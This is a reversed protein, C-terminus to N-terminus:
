RARWRCACLRRCGLGLIRWDPGLKIEAGRAGVIRELLLDRNFTDVLCLRLGIPLASRRRDCCSARYLLLLQLRRAGRLLHLLTLRRRAGPDDTARLNV